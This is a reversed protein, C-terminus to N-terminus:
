DKRFRIIDYLKIDLLYAFYKFLFEEEIANKTSLTELPSIFSVGVLSQPNTGDELM